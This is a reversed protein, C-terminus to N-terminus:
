SIVYGGIEVGRYKHLDITNSVATACAGETKIDIRYKFLHWIHNYRYGGAQSEETDHCVFIEVRDILRQIDKHRQEGPAHDILVVSFPIVAEVSRWDEVYGINHWTSDLPRFKQTWEHNNDYSMLMRGEAGCYKHLQPTSGDGMGMEVIIGMTEEMAILM